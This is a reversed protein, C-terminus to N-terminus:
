CGSTKHPTQRNDIARIICLYIVAVPTQRKLQPQTSKPKTKAKVETTKPLKRCEALIYVPRTYKDKKNSIHGIAARTFVKGPPGQWYNIGIM